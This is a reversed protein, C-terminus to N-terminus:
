KETQTVADRLYAWEDKLLITFSEPPTNEDQYVAQQVQAVLMATTIFSFLAIYLTINKKMNLGKSSSMLYPRYHQSHRLTSMGQLRMRM